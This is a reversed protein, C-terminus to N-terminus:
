GRLRGQKMVTEYGKRPFLYDPGVGYVGMFEPWNRKVFNVAQAEVPEGKSLALLTYWCINRYNAARIYKPIKVGHRRLAKLAYAGAEYEEQAQSVNRYNHRSAIHGCEHALVYLQYIDDGVPGWIRRGEYPRGRYPDGKLIRRHKRIKAERKILEAIERYRKGNKLADKAIVEDYSRDIWHM